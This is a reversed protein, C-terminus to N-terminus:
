PTLDGINIEEISLMSYRLYSDIQVKALAIKDGSYLPVNIVGDCLEIGGYKIDYEGIDPYRELLKLLETKNICAYADTDSNVSIIDDNEFYKGYIHYPSGWSLCYAIKDAEKVSVIGVGFALWYDLKEAVSISYPYREDEPNDGIYVTTDRWLIDSGIVDSLQAVVDDRFSEFIPVDKYEITGNLVQEYLEESPIDRERIFKDRDDVTYFGRYITLTNDDSIVFMYTDNMYTQFITGEIDLEVHIEDGNVSYEGSVACGGELYNVYLSCKGDEFFTISPITQPSRLSFASRHYDSACIFKGIVDFEDEPSQVYVITENDPTDSTPHYFEDFRWGSDTLVMRITFRGTWEWGAACRADREDFTEGKKPYAYSYHAILNFVIETDSKSVLEFKDDFNYNYHPERGRAADLFALKGNYEIFAPDTNRSSFFEETFVSNVLLIFDEWNRYRGQAVM